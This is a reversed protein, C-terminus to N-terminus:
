FLYSLELSGTIYTTGTSFILARAGATTILSSRPLLVRLACEPEWARLCDITSETKEQETDYIGFASHLALSFDVSLDGGGPMVSLAFANKWVNDGGGPNSTASGFVFQSSVGAYFATGDLGAAIGAGLGHGIDAGCPEYQSRSWSGGYRVFAGVCPKTTAAASGLPFAVKLSAGASGASDERGLPMVLRGSLELPRLVSVLFSLEAPVAYVGENSSTTVGLSAGTLRTGQPLSFAAPVGNVGSGGYDISALHYRLSYDVTVNREVRIGKAPVTLVATYVGAECKEGADNRGDWTFHQLWTDFTRSEYTRVTAGGADCIVLTGSEPATVNATITTRGIAGNYDPNFAHREAYFGSVAFEAVELQVSLVTRMRHAIFIDEAYDKYGFARLRIHHTGESLRMAETRYETSDVYLRANQPTAHVELLGERQMLQFYYNNETGAAARVHAHVPLFGPKELRLSYVGPVLDKLILPTRGKHMGNIFVDAGRVNTQIHVITTKEQILISSDPRREAGSERLLETDEFIELKRVMANQASTPEAEQAFFVSGAGLQVALIAIGLVTRFIRNRERYFFGSVGKM